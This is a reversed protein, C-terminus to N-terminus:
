RLRRLADDDTPQDSRRAAKRTRSRTARAPEEAASETRRRSWWHRRTRGSRQVAVLSVRSPDHRMLDAVVTAMEDRDTSGYEVVLAVRDVHAALAALDVETSGGPAGLVVFRSEDLLTGLELALMPTLLLGAPSILELSSYSRVHVGDDGRRPTGRARRRDKGSGIILTCRHGSRSAISALSTAVRGAARQDGVGIVLVSRVRETARGTLATLVALADHDTHARLTTSPFGAQLTAASPIGFVRNLEEADHLTPDRRERLAALALGALLGVVLGSPIILLPNPDRPVNPETANTIVVGPNVDLTNLSALLDALSTLTRDLGLLNNRLVAKEGETTEPDQLQLRVRDAQAGTSAIDSEVRQVREEVEAEATAGRQALYAEAFAQAGQQAQEPTSDAYEIALVSSNPPVTVTVRSLLSTPTADGAFDGAEVAQAAVQESRVLQAETDLNVAGTVRSGEVLVDAETAFVNVRASAVYTRPALVLYAAAVAAALLVCVLLALWRRRVLRIYDSLDRTNAPGRSGAGTSPPHSM